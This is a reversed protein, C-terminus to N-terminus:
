DVFQHHHELTIHLKFDAARDKAWALAFFNGNRRTYNVTDSVLSSRRGAPQVAILDGSALNEETGHRLSTRNLGSTM